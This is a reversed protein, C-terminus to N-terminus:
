CSGCVAFITDDNSAPFSAPGTFFYFFGAEDDVDSIRSLFNGFSRRLLVFFLNFVFIHVANKKFFM